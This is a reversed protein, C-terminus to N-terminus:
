DVWLLDSIVFWSILYQTVLVISDDFKLGFLLRSPIPLIDVTYCRCLAGNAKESRLVLDAYLVVAIVNSPLFDAQYMLFLATISDMMAANTVNGFVTSLYIAHQQQIGM